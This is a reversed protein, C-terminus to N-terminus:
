EININNRPLLNYIIIYSALLSIVFLTGLLDLTDEVSYVYLLTILVKPKYNQKNDRLNPM